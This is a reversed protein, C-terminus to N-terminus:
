SRNARARRLRLFATYRRVEAVDEPHLDKQLDGIREAPEIIGTLLPLQPWYKKRLLEELPVCYKEALEVLLQDGARRGGKEILCLEGASIGLDSAVKEQTFGRKKRLAKLCLGFEARRQQGFDTSRQNM